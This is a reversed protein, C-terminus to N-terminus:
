RSGRHSANLTVSVDHDDNDAGPRRLRAARTLRAELNLHKSLPQNIAIFIASGEIDERRQDAPALPTEHGHFRRAPLESRAHQGARADRASRGDEIAQRDAM